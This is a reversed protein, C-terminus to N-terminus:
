FLTSMLLIILTNLIYGPLTLSTKFEYSSECTNASNYLFVPEILEHIFTKYGKLAVFLKEKM